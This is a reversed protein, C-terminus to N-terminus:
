GFRRCVGYKSFSSQRLNGTQLLLAIIEPLYGDYKVELIMHGPEQLADMDVSLLGSLFTHYMSTRIDSDITVRVNGPSYVFPERLYSVKVRPRLQQTKEKVYLECLLANKVGAMWATDNKLIRRCEEENIQTGRKLCLSNMKVKKELSIHTLDDDYWRIRFKERVPVGDLKERLAKDRYNDFYISSIRYVGSRGAHPDRKMVASLRPVLERYEVPTLVYKLEHRYCIRNESEM